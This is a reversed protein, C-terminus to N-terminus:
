STSTASCRPGLPFSSSSEPGDRRPSYDRPSRECLRDAKENDTLFFETLLPAIAQPRVMHTQGPLTRYRADPLAEALARTVNTMWAPSKDGAAVLTPAKVAAWDLRIYVTDLM